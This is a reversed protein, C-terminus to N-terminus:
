TLWWMVPFDLWVFLDDFSLMSHSPVAYKTQVHGKVSKISGATSPNFVEGCQKPYGDHWLLGFVPILMNEPDWCPDIRPDPCPKHIGQAWRILSWRCGYCSRWMEDWRWAWFGFGKACGQPGGPSLWPVAHGKKESGRPIGFVHHIIPNVWIM